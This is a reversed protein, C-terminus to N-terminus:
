AAKHAETSAELVLEGYTAEQEFGLAAAVDPPLPDAACGDWAGLAWVEEVTLDTPTRGAALDRVYENLKKKVEDSNVKQRENREFMQGVKLFLEDEKTMENGRGTQSKSQLGM